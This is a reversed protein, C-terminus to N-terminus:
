LVSVTRYWFLKPQCASGFKWYTLQATMSEGDTKTFFSMYGNKPDNSELEFNETEKSSILKERMKQNFKEPVLEKFDGFYQEPIKYFLDTISQGSALQTSILLMLIKFFTKM